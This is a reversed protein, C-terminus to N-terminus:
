GRRRASGSRDPVDRWFGYCAVVLSVFVVAVGVAARGILAAGFLVGAFGLFIVAASM